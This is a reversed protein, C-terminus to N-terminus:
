EGMKLKSMIRNLLTDWTEGKKGLERLKDRTAPTCPISAVKKKTVQPEM